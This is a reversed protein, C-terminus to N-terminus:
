NDNPQFANEIYEIKFIKGVQHVLALDFRLIYDRLKNELIYSRATVIIKRQKSPVIIESLAFYNSTRTKVEVFVILDKKQAIIDIEGGKKRFNRAVITYNNSLLHQAVAHEGLHGVIKRSNQESDIFM